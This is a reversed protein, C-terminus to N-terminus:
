IMLKRSLSMPAKGHGEEGCGWCYLGKKKTGRSNSDQPTMTVSTGEACRQIAELLCQQLKELPDTDVGAKNM